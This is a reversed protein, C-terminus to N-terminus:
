IENIVIENNENKLTKWQPLKADEKDLESVEQILTLAADVSEPLTEFSLTRLRCEHVKYQQAYFCHLYKDLRDLVVKAGAADAEALVLVFTNENIFTTEDTERLSNSFLKAFSRLLSKAESEGYKSALKSYSDSEAILVSFSKSYRNSRSLEKSLTERLFQANGVKTISDIRMLLKHQDLSRRFYSVGFSVLFLIGTNLAWNVYTSMSSISLIQYKTMVTIRFVSALLILILTSEVGLMWSSIAIYVVYLGSFGIEGHSLFDILATMLIFALMSSFFIIKSVKLQKTAKKGIFM